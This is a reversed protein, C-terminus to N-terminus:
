KSNLFYNMNDIDAIVGKENDKPVEFTLNIISNYDLLIQKIEMLNYESKNLHLHEDIETSLTSGSIHFIIPKKFKLFNKIFDIYNIEFSIAAKIAHNIDFCFLLDQINDFYLKLTEPNYGLCQGGFISKFPMNEIALPSLNIKEINKISLNIDGSEPHIIYCIPNLENLEESFHNIKEIYELTNKQYNINGMDIGNNSNSLHLAYPIKLNKIIDIDKSTFEPILIIEIFKILDPYDYIKSIFNIDILSIKIGFNIKKM